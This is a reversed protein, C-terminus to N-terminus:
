HDGSLFSFNSDYIVCARMDGQCAKRLAEADEIPSHHDPAVLTAM